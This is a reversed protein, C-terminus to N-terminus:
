RPQENPAAADILETTAAVIALAPAEIAAVEVQSIERADYEIQHRVRRVDDLRQLTLVHNTGLIRKAETFTVVHSRAGATVRVGSARLSATIANRAADYILTYRAESSLGGVSADDLM